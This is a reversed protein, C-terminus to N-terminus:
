YLVLLFLFLLLILWFIYVFEKRIFGIYKISRFLTKKKRKYKWYCTNVYNLVLLEHKIFLTYFIIGKLYKKRWFIIFCILRWSYRLIFMKQPPLYFLGCSTQLLFVLYYFFFYLNKSFSYFIRHFYQHKIAQFYKFNTTKRTAQLYKRKIKGLCEFM